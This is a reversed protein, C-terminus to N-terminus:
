LRMYAYGEKAQLRGIEAIGSPVLRAEPVVRHADIARRTLTNGCVRFDVGRSKLAAIRVEFLEGDKDRAGSLLFDVGDNHAVVVAKVGPSAQIHNAINRLATAADTSENVHYVVKEAGSAPLREYAVPALVIAAAAFAAAAPVAVLTRTRRWWPRACEAEARLRQTIVRRLAAPAPEAALGAGVAARLRRLTGSETRCGECRGLHGELALSSAVDLEGDVYAQLLLRAKACNIDALDM